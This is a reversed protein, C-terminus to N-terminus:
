EPARLLTPRFEYVYEEILRSVYDLLPYDLRIRNKVDHEPFVLWYNSEPGDPKILNTGLRIATLNAVRM